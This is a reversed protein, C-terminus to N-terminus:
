QDRCKLGNRLNANLTGERIGRVENLEELLLKINSRCYISGSIAAYKEVLRAVLAAVIYLHSIRGVFDRQLTNYIHFTSLRCIHM